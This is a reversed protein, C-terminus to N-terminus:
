GVSGDAALLDAVMTSQCQREILLVKAANEKRAGVVSVKPSVGM